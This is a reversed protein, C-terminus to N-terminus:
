IGCIFTDKLCKLIGVCDLNITFFDETAIYTLESPETNKALIRFTAFNDNLNEIRFVSSNSNTDDLEFPLTILTNNCCTYLTIPRTNYCTKNGDSGLFPKQCGYYEECDNNKQQLRLITELTKIFSYSNQM